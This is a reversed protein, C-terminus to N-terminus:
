CLLDLSDLDVLSDELMCNRLLAFEAVYKKWRFTEYVVHLSACLVAAAASGDEEFNGQSDANLVGAHDLIVSVVACIGLIHDLNLEVSLVPRDILLVPGEATEM